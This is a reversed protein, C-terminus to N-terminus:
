PFDTDLRHSAPASLDTRLSEGLAAAIAQLLPRQSHNLYFHGGEFMQVSIDDRVHDRWAALSAQDAHRDDM